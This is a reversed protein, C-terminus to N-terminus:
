CAVYQYPTLQTVTVDNSKYCLAYYTDGNSAQLLYSANKNGNDLLAQDCSKYLALNGAWSDEPVCVVDEIAGQVGSSLRLEKVPLMAEDVVWFFQNEGRPCRCESELPEAESCESQDSIFKIPLVLCLQVIFAWDGGNNRTCQGDSEGGFYKSVQDNYGLYEVSTALNDGESCCISFCIVGNSVRLWQVINVFTVPNKAHM